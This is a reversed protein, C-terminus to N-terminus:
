DIVGTGRLAQFVDDAGSRALARLPEFDPDLACWQPTVTSTKLLRRVEWAVKKSLVTNAPDVLVSIARVCALNYDSRDPGESALRRAIQQLRAAGEVPPMGAVLELHLWSASATVSEPPSGDGQASRLRGLRNLLGQAAQRRSTERLRYLALLAGNLFPIVPSSTDDPELSVLWCDIAKALRDLLEAAETETLPARNIAIRATIAKAMSLAKVKVFDFASTKATEKSAWRPVIRQLCTPESHPPM